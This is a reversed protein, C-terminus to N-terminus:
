LLEKQQRWKSVMIARNLGGERNVRGELLGGKRESTPKQLLGGETIVWGRRNGIVFDVEHAWFVVYFHQSSKILM